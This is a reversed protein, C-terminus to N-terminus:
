KQLIYEIGGELYNLLYIDNSIYDLAISYPPFTAIGKVSRDSLPLLLANGLIVTEIIM